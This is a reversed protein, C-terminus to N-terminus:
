AAKKLSIILQHGEIEINTKYKYEDSDQSMTTALVEKKIMESNDSIAKKLSDDSTYLILEIRNEVDLGADKRAQQVNRIVERALGENKLTPTIKTDLKIDQVKSNEVMVKKVNLEEGIIDKLQESLKQTTYITASALPQRVKLQKES